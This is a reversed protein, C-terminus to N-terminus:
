PTHCLTPGTFGYRGSFGHPGNWSRSLLQQMRNGYAGIVRKYGHWLAPSLIGEDKTDEVSLSCPYRAWSELGEEFRRLVDLYRNKYPIHSSQKQLSTLSHSKLRQSLKGHSIWSPHEYVLFSKIANELALGGLLFVARNTDDWSQRVGSRFDTFSSISLGQRSYLHVAQQHLNDAVRLWSHPSAVEAFRLNIDEV